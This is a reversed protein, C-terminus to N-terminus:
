NKIAGKSCSFKINWSIGITAQPEMGGMTRGSGRYASTPVFLRCGRVSAIVCQSLNGIGTM